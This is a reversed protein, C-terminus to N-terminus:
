LMAAEMAEFAALYKDIYFSKASSKYQVIYRPHEVAIITKFYNYQENLKQLYKENKGTGLVMCVQTHLGLGIQRHLNNIIFARVANALAPSDYYNYNIEKGKATTNTFGLPCLSNIYFRNYFKAPGGYAEIVDYVFVSSPEHTVARTYSIGCHTKLRKPDTFPIGTVGGGFRGPNM